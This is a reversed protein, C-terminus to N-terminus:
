KPPELSGWPVSVRALADEGCALELTAFYMPGPRLMAQATSSRMEPTLKPAPGRQGSLEIEVYDGGQGLRVVLRTPAGGTDGEITLEATDGALRAAVSRPAMTADLGAFFRRMQEFKEPPMRQGADASLFYEAREAGMAEVYSSRVTLVSAGRVPSLLERGYLKDYVRTLGSEASAEVRYRANEIVGGEAVLERGGSGKASSLVIWGMAPLDVQQYEGDIRVIEKRPHPLTNFVVTGGEPAIRSALTDALRDRMAEATTRAKGAKVELTRQTQDTLAWNHTSSEMALRWASEVEEQSLGDLGLWDCWVGLTQAQAITNEFLARDRALNWVRGYLIEGHETHGSLVPIAEGGDLEQRLKAFYDAYTGLIYRAKQSCAADANWGKVFASIKDLPPMADDWGQGGDTLLILRGTSPLRLARQGGPEGDPWGWPRQGSFEESMNYNQANYLLRSGDLGLFWANGAFDRGGPGLSPCGSKYAHFSPVGSRVMVQALQPTVDSLEGNDAVAPRVGLKEHLWWRSWAIQRVLHEGSLESYHPNTWNVCVEIRGQRILEAFRDAMDPRAELFAAAASALQVSYRASPDAECAEVAQAICEVYRKYSADPTKTFDIDMHTTPILVVTMPEASQARAPMAAAFLSLVTCVGIKLCSM